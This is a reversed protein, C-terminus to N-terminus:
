EEFPTENQEEDSDLVNEVVEGGTTVGSFIQGVRFRWDDKGKPAGLVVELVDAFASWRLHMAEPSTFSISTRIGTSRAKVIERLKVDEIAALCQDMVQRLDRNKTDSRESRISGKPKENRRVLEKIFTDVCELDDM